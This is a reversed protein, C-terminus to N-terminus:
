KLANRLPVFKWYTLCRWMWELPGYRFHDLWPKSWALMLVWTLVVVALLKDRHLEGFLGGAWSQFVLMMLISTGLYNSFAMRGVAVFRSGLWSQSATGGWLALLAVLGLIMPLHLFSALGNFVLQTTLLPFGAQMVWLGLPVTLLAGGLLGTWGWRRLRARDPRDEFLGFRFLAMGILMLPITETLAFFVTQEPLGPGDDALRHRIVEGYSGERTVQMEEAADEIVVRVQESVQPRQDQPPDIGGMNAFLVSLLLGGAFFWAIGARLQTRAQWDLMLLAGFGAAAYLLLIDGTWLLFTHALGFLALWGLRRAQLAPDGGRADVREAFLVMSAGFLLTFLGRFKGDILVFQVLWTWRDFETAGGPLGDPWYYALFPHGYAVVNPLLIGLVAVGRVFDLAVLREGGSVPEDRTATPDEPEETLSVVPAM